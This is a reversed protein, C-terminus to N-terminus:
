PMATALPGFAIIHAQHLVVVVAAASAVAFYTLIRSNRKRRRRRQTVSEDENWSFSELPSSIEQYVDDQATRSPVM